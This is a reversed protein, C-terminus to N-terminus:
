VTVRYSYLFSEIILYASCECHCIICSLIGCFSLWDHSGRSWQWRTVHSGMELTRIYSYIIDTPRRGHVNTKYWNTDFPLVALDFSVGNEIWMAEELIPDLPWWFSFWNMWRQSNWHSPRLNLLILVRNIFGISSCLCTLLRACVIFDAWLVTTHVCTTGTCPLIWTGSDWICPRVDFEDEIFVVAFCVHPSTTCVFNCTTM